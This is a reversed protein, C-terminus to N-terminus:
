SDSEEMEICCSCRGRKRCLRRPACRMTGAAVARIIDREVHSGRWRATRPGYSSVSSRTSKWSGRSRKSRPEAPATVVAVFPHSALGSPSDLPPADWLGRQGGRLIMRWIRNLQMRDIRAIDSLYPFRASLTELDRRAAFREDYSALVSKGAAGHPFYDLALKRFNFEGLINLVTPYAGALAECRQMASNNRYDPLAPCRDFESEVRFPDRCAFDRKSSALDAHCPRVGAISSSLERRSRAGRALRFFPPFTATPTRSFCFGDL